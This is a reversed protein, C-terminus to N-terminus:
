SLSFRDAKVGTSHCFASTVILWWYYNMHPSEMVKLKLLESRDFHMSKGDRFSLHSISGREADADNIPMIRCPLLWWSM